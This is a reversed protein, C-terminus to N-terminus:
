RRCLPFTFGIIRRAMVFRFKERWRTMIRRGSPIDAMVFYRRCLPPLIFRPISIMERLAGGVRCRVEINKPNPELRIESAGMEVANTIIANALRVVPAQGAAEDEDDPKDITANLDNMAERWEHFSAERLRPKAQSPNGGPEDPMTSSDM